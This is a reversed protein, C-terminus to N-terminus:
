RGVLRKVVVMTLDDSLDTVSGTFSGIDNRVSELIAEASGDHTRKLAAELRGEHYEEGDPSMAETVGDTYLALVDGVNLAAAGREYRASKMVGLLLGGTDLQEISGDRRILMPPNHGANVYEMKGSAGHLIGAFFTIFKDFDTNECIVRNIHAVAEEITLDMPLMVHLSAQLNAMLLSAPIGKGTVDAVAVLLRDGKLSVLDYYDGGVLRSPEALAAIDYGEVVPVSQPFLREQIRRALRMEEELREKEIQEEVLFSNQISVFALNGLASLFEVDGSTYAQGTRKRGLCLAGCTEGHHKLPLALIIGRERLQDWSNDGNAKLGHEGGGGLSASGDELLLLENLGCLRRILDPELHTSIGKSSTVFIDSEDVPERSRRLVFMHRSVLLQGMLAFSLLKVLRGRDITANFEQSLDFLTNLEQVRADLDRNALQLEEVMLSNHVATSSMNVLSRVFQLEFSTFAEGTAKGGVALLGIERKGFTIPLALKLGREALPGPVRDDLLLVDSTLNPLPLVQGEELSKVGKAAWVRYGPELPEYMMVVGRTTLLKSMLTLLLSNLVFRLDLSRSLLQSTEFLARLDFRESRALTPVSDSM